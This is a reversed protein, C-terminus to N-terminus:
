HQARSTQRHWVRINIKPARSPRCRWVVRSQIRENAMCYTTKVKRIILFYLFIDREYKFFRVFYSLFSFMIGKARIRSQVTVKPNYGVKPLFCINKVFSIYGSLPYLWFTVTLQIKSKHNPNPNLNPNTDPKPLRNTNLIIPLPFSTKDQRM